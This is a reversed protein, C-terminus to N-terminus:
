FRFLDLFLRNLVIHRGVFPFRMRWSNRFWVSCSSIKIYFGSRNDIQIPSLYHLYKVTETKTITKFRKNEYYTKLSPSFLKDSFAFTNFSLTSFVRFASACTYFSMIHIINIYWSAFKTIYTFPTVVIFASTCKLAWSTALPGIFLTLLVVLARRFSNSGNGERRTNNQFFEKM